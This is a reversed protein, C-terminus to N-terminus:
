PATVTWSGGVYSSVYTIWYLDVGLKGEGVPFNYGDNSYVDSINIGSNDYNYLCLYGPDAHGPGACHATTSGTEIVNNDSIANALPHPYMISLGIWGSASGGGTFLGSESKGSRLTTLGKVNLTPAVSKVISIIQAKTPSSLMATTAAYGTGGLAVFLAVLSIVLAPSPAKLKSRM